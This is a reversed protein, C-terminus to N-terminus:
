LFLKQFEKLPTSFGLKERPRRNIKHQVMDLQRQSIKRFDTGKPFYQRFLKNANEVAGKQWSCYPDTFYVKVGLKKTLWEHNMFEVGNDTTITRLRSKYPLLLRWAQRAVHDPRKSKLKTQLFMNTCRDVITLVASKQDKGIILDMEIDGPRTGDAEPPREEMPNRNPIRPKGAGKKAGRRRKPYKLRHRCNAALKGSEDDHIMTYIRQHSISIGELALAGSIQRPSWQEELILTEAKHLIWGPTRANLVSEHRREMAMAHAQKWSYGGHKNANRRLERSVTSVSCGVAQATEKQKFGKDKLVFIQSRQESTLQHYNKM